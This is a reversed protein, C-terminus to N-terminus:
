RLVFLVAAIAAGVVVGAGLLVVASDVLLGIGVAVAVAVVAVAVTPVVGRGLGADTGATLRETPTPEPEPEPPKALTEDVDVPQAEAPPPEVTVDVYHIETGYGTVVKLKGTVPESPARTEVRVQSTSEGEVFHNTASLSAVRSLADDVNLHVHVPQGRNVLEVTFPADVTIRDPADISHVGDANLEVSLTPM